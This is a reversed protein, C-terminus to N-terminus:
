RSQRDFGRDIVEGVVRVVPRDDQRGLDDPQDQEGYANDAGVEDRPGEQGRSGETFVAPVATVRQTFEGGRWGGVGAALRALFAVRVDDLFQGFVLVLGERALSAVARALSMGIIRVHLQFDEAEAVTNAAVFGIRGTGFPVFLDNDVLMVGAFAGLAVHRM